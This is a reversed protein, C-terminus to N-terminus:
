NVANRGNIRFAPLMRMVVIERWGKATYLCRLVSFAFRAFLLCPITLNLTQEPKTDYPIFFGRNLASKASTKAADMPDSRAAIGGVRIMDAWTM